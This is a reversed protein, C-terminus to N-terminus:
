HSGSPRATDQSSSSPARGAPAPFGIRAIMDKFRAEDRLTDFEQASALFVLDASHERLAQSLMALAQEKDGLGAYVQALGYPSVYTYKARLKIEGLLKKAEEKNGEFARTMALGTLFYNANGSLDLAKSFEAAADPYRRTYVYAYALWVHVSVFQPDLELDQKCEKIGKDYEGARIYVYCVFSNTLLSAPDLQQARRIEEFAEQYRGVHTLYEAYMKHGVASSPNLELGRVYEKEAGAWDWDYENLVEANALHADALTNDIALARQAAAKAKPYAETSSLYNWAAAVNYSYALAAYAPAFQPDKETAREFNGISKQLEEPTRKNLELLGKLYADNAEPIASNPATVSRASPTLVELSLSEAIRDAVERQIALLDGANRDYAESWLSGHHRASFLDATIRVRNGERQFSGELVYDAHQERAIEEVAKQAGKYQMATSRAIVSLQKPSIAGLRTIMEATLGDSLYDQSPDGSLDEFPVVLISERHPGGDAEASRNLWQHYAFAGFALV